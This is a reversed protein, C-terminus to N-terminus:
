VGLFGEGAGVVVVFHQKDYLMLCGFEPHFEHDVFESSGDIV